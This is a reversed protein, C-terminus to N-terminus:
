ASLSGKKSILHSIKLKIEGLMIDRNTVKRYLAGLKHNVVWFGITVVHM